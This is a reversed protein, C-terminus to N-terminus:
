RGATRRRRRPPRRRTSAGASAPAGLAVAVAVAVRVGADARDVDRDRPQAFAGVEGLPQELGALPGLGRQDGTLVKSISETDFDWTLRIATSWSPSSREAALARGQQGSINVQGAVPGCRGNQYQGISSARRGSVVPGPRHKIPM